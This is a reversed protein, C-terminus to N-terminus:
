GAALKTADGPRYSFGVDRSRSLLGGGAVRAFPRRVGELFLSFVHLSDPPAGSGSQREETNKTRREAPGPLRRCACEPRARAVSASAPFDPGALNSADGDISPSVASKAAPAPRRSLVGDRVQGTWFRLFKTELACLASRQAGHEKGAQPQFTPQATEARGAGTRAGRRRPGDKRPPLRRHGGGRRLSRGKLSLFVVIGLFGEEKEEAKEDHDDRSGM